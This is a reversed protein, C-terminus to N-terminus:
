EYYNTISKLLNISKKVLKYNIFVDDYAALEYRADEYTELFEYTIDDSDAHLNDYNYMVISVPNSEDIVFNLFDFVDRSNSSEFSYPESYIRKTDERKGRLIFKDYKRDYLIFLNMDKKDNDSDTEEIKLVLCDTPPSM